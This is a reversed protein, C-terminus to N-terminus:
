EVDAGVVDGEHTEVVLIERLSLLFAAIRAVRLVARHGKALLM